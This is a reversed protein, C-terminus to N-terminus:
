KEQLTGVSTRWQLVYAALCFVVVAEEHIASRQGSKKRLFNRSTSRKELVVDNQQGTRIVAIVNTSYTSSKTRHNWNLSNRFHTVIPRQILYTAIQRKEFHTFIAVHVGGPPSPSVLLVPTSRPFSQDGSIRWSTGLDQKKQRPM